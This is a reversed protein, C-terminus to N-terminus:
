WGPAARLRLEIAELVVPVLRLRLMGRIRGRLRGVVQVVGDGVHRADDHQGFGGHGALRRLRISSVPSARPSTIRSASSTAPASCRVAAAVDIQQLHLVVAAVVARRLIEELADGGVAVHDGAVALCPMGCGSASPQSEAARCPWAYSTNRVLLVPTSPRPASAPCTERSRLVRRVAARTCPEPALLVRDTVTSSPAQSDDGEGAAPDFRGPVVGGVIEPRSRRSSRSRIRPASWRRSAPRAPTSPRRRPRDPQGRPRWRSPLGVRRTVEREISDLTRDRRDDISADLPSHGEVPRHRCSRPVARVRHNRQRATRVVRRGVRRRVRDSERHRGPAPGADHLRRRATSTASPSAAYSLRSPM